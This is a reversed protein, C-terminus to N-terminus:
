ALGKARVLAEYLALLKTNAVATSFAEARERATEGLKERLGPDHGLEVLAAALAEVDDPEILRGCEDNTVVAPIGGVAAAVVPLGLAMAEVIVRGMGENRSPVVVVDAAVLHAPADATEGTM